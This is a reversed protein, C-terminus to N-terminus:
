MSIAKLAKTTSILTYENGAISAFKEEIYVLKSVVDKLGVYIAKPNDYGSTSMLGMNIIQNLWVSYKVTKSLFDQYDMPPISFAAVAHPTHIAVIAEKFLKTEFSQVDTPINPNEETVNILKNIINVRLQRKNLFHPITGIMTLVDQTWTPKKPLLLKLETSSKPMKSPSGGSSALPSIRKVKNGTVTGSKSPGPPQDSTGPKDTSAAQFIQGPTSPQFSTGLKAHLMLRPNSLNVANNSLNDEPIDLNLVFDTDSKPDTKQSSTQTNTLDSLPMTSAAPEM